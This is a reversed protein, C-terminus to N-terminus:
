YYFLHAKGYGQMNIIGLLLGNGIMREPVLVSEDLGLGFGVELVSGTPGEGM